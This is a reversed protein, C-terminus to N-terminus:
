NNIVSKFEDFVNSLKQYTMNRVDSHLWRLRLPHGKRWETLSPSKLEISTLRLTTLSIDVSGMAPSLAPIRYALIEYLQQTRVIPDSSPNLMEETASFVPATRFTLCDVPDTIMSNAVEATYLM